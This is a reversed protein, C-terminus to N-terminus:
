REPSPTWEIERSSGKLSDQRPPVVDDGWDRKFSNVRSFPRSTNESTVSRSTVLVPMISACCTFVFGLNIRLLLNFLAFTKTM